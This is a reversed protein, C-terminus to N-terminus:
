AAAPGRNHRPARTPDLRAPPLLEPLGERDLRVQWRDPPPRGWLTSPEVLRHHHPCLLVLNHLATDGGILWPIIHHAECLPGPATCGPFACGRDRLILARRLAPSIVRTLRGLDLPESRGRLVAPIVGADCALRRLEGADILTGDPLLGTPELRERLSEADMTVVLRTRVRTGPSRSEAGATEPPEGGQRGLAMLADARRQTLTARDGPALPTREERAAHAAHRDLWDKLPTAELIPLSGSLRWAGDGDDTFTLGRRARARGQRASLRAQARAPTEAASPCAADIAPEVLAPVSAAPVGAAAELLARQIQHREAPSLGIPLGTLARAVEQAQGVTLHGQLAADRVAPHAALDRGSLVLRSAARNTLSPDTATLWDSTPTGAAKVSARAQDAEAILAVILAELCQGAARALRVLELREEAALLARGSHDIGRVAAIVESLVHATRSGDMACVSRIGVSM